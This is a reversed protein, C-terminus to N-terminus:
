VQENLRRVLNKLVVLQGLHYHIHEVTGQLNKYVSGYAPLIPAELQAVDVSRIAEALEHASRLNDAQLEAWDTETQLELGDFGNDPGIETPLGHARRAMVRNWYTLHRVLGAITNPSALTRAVAEALAVDQLTHVVDVETWNNGEHVDLVHQAIAEPINM